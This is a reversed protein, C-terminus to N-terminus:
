KPPKWFDLLYEYTSGMAIYNSPWGFIGIGNVLNTKDWLIINRLEYGRRRLEEVLAIHIAVYENERWMDAINIVCHAKPRLLPLLREYIDGMAQTYQALSMTGLDRADQSYQEIKGLQRNDRKRYGLNRRVRNLLNAYPPSTCILSVAELPIYDGINRADAQIAIQQTQNFLTSYALRAECVKVYQASLDFGLANRNLDRAAVLTTGAGVFPDLVLEGEHSFLAIVKRALALPFTAPHVAKDRMDRKEYSFQWVGIQSKMWGSATLCNIHTPKCQCTREHGIAILKSAPGVDEKVTQAKQTM